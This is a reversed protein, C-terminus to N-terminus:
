KILLGDLWEPEQGLVSLLVLGIGALGSILGKKSPTNHKQGLIYEIGVAKYKELTYDLWRHSASYFVQEGTIDHMQSFLLVLGMSGHCVGAGTIEASYETRNCSHKGVKIAFEYFDNRNLAKGARALTLATCLDGYCWGLKSKQNAGALYSFYSGVKSPSQQQEIVWNCSHLILDSVYPKVEPINLSPLMAAIFSLQGHALGMNVECRFSTENNTYYVSNKYVPWFLHHLDDKVSLASFHQALKKISLLNIPQHSRRYLYPAVGALGMVMEIETDWVKKELLNHILKDISTNAEFVAKQSNFIVEFLWAVGAYGHALSFDPILGETKDALLNFESNLWEEDVWTSNFKEAFFLMLLQGAKGDLLGSNNCLERKVTSIIIQLLEISLTYREPTNTFNFKM